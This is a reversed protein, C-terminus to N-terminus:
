GLGGAMLRSRLEVPKICAADRWATGPLDIRLGRTTAGKITMQSKFEFAGSADSDFIEYDEFARRHDLKAGFMAEM